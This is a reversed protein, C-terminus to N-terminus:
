KRERRKDADWDTWRWATGGSGDEIRRFTEDGLFNEMRRVENSQQNKEKGKTYEENVMRQM